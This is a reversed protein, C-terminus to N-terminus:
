LYQLYAPKFQSTVSNKLNVVPTESGTLIGADIAKKVQTWRYYDSLFKDRDIEAQTPATVTTDVSSGVTLSDALAYLAEFQAIKGRVASKLWSMDAASNLNFTDEFTEVGNTFEVAVSVRGGSKTVQKITHNWM